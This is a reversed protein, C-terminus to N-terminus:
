ACSICCTTTCKHVVSVAVYVSSSPIVCFFDVMTLLPCDFEYLICGQPIATEPELLQIICYSSEGTRFGGWIWLHCYFQNCSKISPPMLLTCSAIPQSLLIAGREPITMKIAGLELAATSLKRLTGQQYICKESEVHKGLYKSMVDSKYLEALEAGFKDSIGSCINRTSDEAGFNTAIYKSPSHKNSFINKARIIPNFSECRETNYALPPGFQLMSECLHLLLHVKLKRKLNALIATVCSSCDSEYSGVMEPDFPQCYAIRFVKSLKFWVEKEGDDMYPSSLHVALQALLKFDQGVFSKYYRTMDKNWVKSKNGSTDDSYIMLPVMVVPMNGLEISRKKLPHPTTFAMYEKEEFCVFDHVRGTVKKGTEM